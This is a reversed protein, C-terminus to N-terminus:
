ALVGDVDHEFGFEAEVQSAESPSAIVHNNTMLLRAGVLFGTGYAFGENMPMKIRCVAAAARRGRDLFNISTLDSEGIMREFGNPDSTPAEILDRRIKLRNHDKASAVKVRKVAPQGTAIGACTKKLWRQIAASLKKNEVAIIDTREAFNAIDMKM